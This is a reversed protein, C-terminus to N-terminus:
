HDGMGETGRAGAHLGLQRLRELRAAHTAYRERLAAVADRVVANANPYDGDAVLGAIYADQSDTFSVRRRRV